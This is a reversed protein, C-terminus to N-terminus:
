RQVLHLQGGMWPWHVLKMNNSTASYNGTFQGVEVLNDSFILNSQKIARIKFLRM